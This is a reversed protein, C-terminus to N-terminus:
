CHAEFECDFKWFPFSYRFFSKSRGASRMQRSCYQLSICAIRGKCRLFKKVASVQSRSSAVFIVTFPACLTNTRQMHMVFRRRQGAYHGVIMSGVLFFYDITTGPSLLRIVVAVFNSAAFSKAALFDELNSPPCFFFFTSHCIDGLSSTEVLVRVAPFSFLIIELRCTKPSSAPSLGQGRRRKVRVTAFNQMARGRPGDLRNM